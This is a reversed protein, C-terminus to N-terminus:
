ANTFITEVPLRAEGLVDLEEHGTYVKRAEATIVVVEQREPKIIWVATAGHTIHALADREMGIQVVLEPSGILFEDGPVTDWRAISCVGVDAARADFNATLGYPLKSGVLWAGPNLLSALADRVNCQLDFQRRSPLGVKVAVGFHLEYLYDASPEPDAFFQDITLLPQFPM